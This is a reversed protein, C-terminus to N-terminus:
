VLIKKMHKLHLYATLTCINICRDGQLPAPKARAGGEAGDSSSVQLGTLTNDLTELFNHLEENKNALTGIIRRLAEQTVCLFM